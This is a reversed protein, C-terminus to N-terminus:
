GSDLCTRVAAALHAPDFPKQLFNGGAGGGSTGGRYGSMYIVRLGPQESRLQEALQGGSVGGPMILDTLLLDFAGAQQRWLELAAAGSAAAHVRYGQTGLVKVALARVAAEDEVVLISENGGLVRAAVGPDGPLIAGKPLRPLHVRFTAGKGPPSEVEVWGHHQEVIGHVTALGLGTGKGIEKTTFFPEFIHPLHEAAIGLGTDRMSVCIISGPLSSPHRRAAAEDPTWNDLELWLEGGGPMADRANIALNLLVQEIMGSDGEIWAGGPLLRIHLVIDEGILRQLMRGVSSVVDNLDLSRMQLPQRRSFALLQRTLNAARIAAAQIEKVSETMEPDADNAGALM